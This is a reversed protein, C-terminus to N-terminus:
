IVVDEHRSIRITSNELPKPLLYREVQTISEQHSAAVFDTPNAFSYQFTIDLSHTQKM